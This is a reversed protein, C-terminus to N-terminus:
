FNEWWFWITVSLDGTFSANKAKRASIFLFDSSWLISATLGIRFFRDAREQLSNTCKHWVLGVSMASVESNLAILFNNRLFPANTVEEILKDIAISWVVGVVSRPIDLVILSWKRDILFISFFNNDVCKTCALFRLIIFVKYVLILRFSSDKKFYKNLSVLILFCYTKHNQQLYVQYGKGIWINAVSTLPLLTKSPVM